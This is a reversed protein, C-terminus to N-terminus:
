RDTMVNTVPDQPPGDDNAARDNAAHRWSTQPLIHLPKPFRSPKISRVAVLQVAFEHGCADPNRCHYYVERFTLSCKGSTRAFAKGGCAPCSVHPMKGTTGTM